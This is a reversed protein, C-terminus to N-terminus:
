RFSVVLPRHDSADTAVIRARKLAMSRGVFVHDIQRFTWWPHITGARARGPTLDLARLPRLGRLTRNLDGILIADPLLPGLLGVLSGQQVRNAEPNWALHTAVVKIGRWSAVIAARPEETGARPLAVTQLDSLPERSAVAIGYEWGDRAVTPLFSVVLGTLRELEAPQDSQESRPNFRDLEQLAVLEAGTARIVEATRNLDVRGDLGRGHRINFSAVTTKLV